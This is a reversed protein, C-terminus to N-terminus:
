YGVALKTTIRHVQYDQGAALNSNFKEFEYNLGATLWLQIKYALGLNFTYLNDQRKAIDYEYALYNAGVQAVWKGSAGFTKLVRLAVEDAVYSQGLSEVSVYSNRRYSLSTSTQENFNYDLSTEVVIGGPVPTAGSFQRLEYGAKVTGDLKPTFQGKAGIFAGMFELHPGKQLAPSNPNIATQGYYFEGFLTTKALAKFEFGATGKFTNYDYIPIGSEYDTLGFSGDLYVGTKESLVYAVTYRHDQVTREIPRSSLYNLGRGLIESTMQISDSGRVIVRATQFQDKIALSHNIANLHDNEFYFRSELGYALSVFNHDPKGVSLNIGPTILTIFDNTQNSSTYFLNNDFRQAIELQPRLTLPGISYVLVDSPELASATGFATAFAAVAIWLQKVM